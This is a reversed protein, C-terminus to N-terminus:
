SEVNPTLDYSDQIRNGFVRIGRWLASYPRGLSQWLHALALLAERDPTTRALRRIEAEGSIPCLVVDLLQPLNKSVDAGGGFNTKTYKYTGDLTEDAVSESEIRPSVGLLGAPSLGPQVSDTKAEPKPNNM